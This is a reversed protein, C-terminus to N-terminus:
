KFNYEDFKKAEEEFEEEEYVEWDAKPEEVVLAGMELDVKRRMSDQIDEELSRLSIKHHPRIYTRYPLLKMQRAHKIVKAVKRQQNQPLRNQVPTQIFACSNIFQTLLATNRWHLDMLNIEEIDNRRIIGKNLPKKVHIYDKERFDEWNIGREHSFYASPELMEEHQLPSNELNYAEVWSLSDRSLRRKPTMSSADDVGTEQRLALNVIKEPTFLENPKIMIERALRNNKIYQFFPDETLKLGVKGSEPNLIEERSLGADEM